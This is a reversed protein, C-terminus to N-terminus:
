QGTRLGAIEPNQTDWPQAENWRLSSAICGGDILEKVINCAKRIESGDAHQISAEIRQWHVLLKEAVRGRVRKGGRGRDRM